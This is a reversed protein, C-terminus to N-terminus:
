NLKIVLIEGIWRMSGEAPYSPMAKIESAMLASQESRSVLHVPLNLVYQFYGEYTGYHTTSSPMNVGTVGYLSEFGPMKGSLEPRGIICVKTVGPQYCDVDYLDDTLRTMFSLTAKQELSKKLYLSNSLVINQFLLGCLLCLAANRCIRYFRKKWDMKLNIVTHWLLVPFAPILWVAYKMLDHTHIAQNIMVGGGEQSKTGRWEDANYYSEDRQWKVLADAGTVKGYEGSDILKKAFIASENYRNQFCVALRASSAKEAATLEKIGDVSIACPKELVVNIGQSLANVAMPVHLYHPTCIHVVDPKEERLMEEYDTYARCSHESATKEARQEIIDAVATLEVADKGLQEIANLHCKSIGGCGILCARM